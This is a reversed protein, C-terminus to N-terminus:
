NNILEEIYDPLYFDENDELWDNTEDDIYRDYLPDICPLSNVESVVNLLRKLENQTLESNNAIKERLNRTNGPLDFQDHFIIYAIMLKNIFKQDQKNVKKYPNHGEELKIMDDDITAVSMNRNPVDLSYLIYVEKDKLQEKTYINAEVLSQKYYHLLGKEIVEGITFRGSYLEKQIQTKLYGAKILNDQNILVINGKNFKM